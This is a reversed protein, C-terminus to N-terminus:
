KGQHQLIIQNKNKLLEKKKEEALKRDDARIEIKNGDLDYHEVSLIQENEDFTLWLGTKVTILYIYQIINNEIVEEKKESYKGYERFKNGEYFSYFEGIPKGENNFQMDQKITGNPFFDVRTYGCQGFVITEPNFIDERKKAGNEYYYFWTGSKLFYISKLIGTSDVNGNEYWATYQGDLNGTNDFNYELKKKENPYYETWLGSKVNRLTDILLVFMHQRSDEVQQNNWVVYRLLQGTRKLNGSSDFEKYNIAMSDISTFIEHALKNGYYNISDGKQAFANASIFALLFTIISATKKM